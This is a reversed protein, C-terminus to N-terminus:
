KVPVLEAAIKLLEDVSLNSLLEYKIDGAIWTLQTANSYDITIPHLNVPNGNQDVAGTTDPLDQRYQGSLGTNLVGPQGNITTAQGNPLPVGNTADSKTFILFQDDKQYIDESKGIPGDIASAQGIGAVPPSSFEPLYGPLKDIPTDIPGSVITFFLTAVQARVPPIFAVTAASVLLMGLAFLVFKTKMTLKGQLTPQAYFAFPASREFWAMLRSRPRQAETALRAQLRSLAQPSPATQVARIKLSQSVLNRTQSLLALERQCSECGALHGQILERESPNIENDLYAPLLDKTQQCNM